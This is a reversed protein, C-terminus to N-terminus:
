CCPRGIHTSAEYLKGIAQLAMGLHYHAAPFSPQLRLAQVILGIAEENRGNQHAIVGLLHLAELHQPDVMLIQRYLSEAQQLHGAQHHQMALQFKQSTSHMPLVGQGIVSSDRFRANDAIIPTWALPLLVESGIFYRTGNVASARASCVCRRIGPVIRASWCGAGTPSRPCLWGCRRVWAGALHAVATDVTIVLDLCRIVAATDAMDNLEPGLDVALDPMKALEDRGDGKQLSILRVGPLEALPAFQELSVSRWRDAAHGPNGQWVIGVRLGAPRDDLAALRTRWREVLEPDCDLYPVQAPIREVSTTGLLRPLSLLFAGVDTDPFPPSCIVEDVDACSGMLRQLDLPCVLVVRGAGQQKLLSAYRVFQLMDGFGQEVHLRISRGQLPSGDWQLRGLSILAGRRVQFVKARWRWEYAEWGATFNGQQLLPLAMKFYADGNEPEFELAKRYSAISEELRGLDHLAVGLNIHADAFDPKRRIAERPQDRGRRTQGGRNLVIGQNNYVEVYNPNLRLAERYARLADERKKQKRLM